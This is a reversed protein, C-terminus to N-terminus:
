EEMDRIGLDGTGPRGGLGTVSAKQSVSQTIVDMENGNVM